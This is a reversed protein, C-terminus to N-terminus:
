EGMRLGPSAGHWPSLFGCISYICCSDSGEFLMGKLLIFVCLVFMLKTLFQTDQYSVNDKIRIFTHLEKTFYNEYCLMEQKMFIFHCIIFM